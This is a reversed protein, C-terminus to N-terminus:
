TVSSCSLLSPHLHSSIKHLSVDMLPTWGMKFQPVPSRTRAHLLMLQDHVHLIAINPCEQAIINRFRGMDPRLPNLGSQYCKIVGM